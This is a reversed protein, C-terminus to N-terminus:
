RKGDDDRVENARVMDKSEGAGRKKWGGICKQRRAKGRTARQTHWAVTKKNM